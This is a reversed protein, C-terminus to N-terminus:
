FLQLSLESFRIEFYKEKEYTSFNHIFIVIQYLVHTIRLCRQIRKKIVFLLKIVFSSLQM